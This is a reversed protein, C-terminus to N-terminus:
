AELDKYISILASHWEYETDLAVTNDSMMSGVLNDLLNSSEKRMQRKYAQASARSTGFYYFYMRNDCLAIVHDFYSDPPNPHSVVVCPYTKGFLGGESVTDTRVTTPIGRNIAFCEITSSLTEATIGDDKTFRLPDRIAGRNNKLNM